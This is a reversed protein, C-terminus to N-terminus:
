WQVQKTTLLKQENVSKETGVERAHQELILQQPRLIAFGCIVICLRVNSVAFGCMKSSTIRVIGITQCVIYMIQSIWLHVQPLSSGHASCSFHLRRSITQICWSRFHTQKKEVSKRVFWFKNNQFIICKELNHEYRWKSILSLNSHSPTMALATIAHVIKSDFLLM